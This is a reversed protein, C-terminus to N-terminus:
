FAHGVSKSGELLRTFRPPAASCPQLRGAAAGLCGGSPGPLDNIRVGGLASAVGGGGGEEDDDGEDDEGGAASDRAISVHAAVLLLPHPHLATCSKM